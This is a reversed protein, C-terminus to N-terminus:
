IQILDFQLFGRFILGFFHYVGDGSFLVFGRFFGGLVQFLIYVCVHHDHIHVSGQVVTKTM